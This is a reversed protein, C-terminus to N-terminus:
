ILHQGCGCQRQPQGDRRRPPPPVIITINTQSPPESQGGEFWFTRISRISWPQREHAVVVVLRVCVSSFGIRLYPPEIRCPSCGSVHLCRSAAETNSALACELQVCVQREEGKSEHPVALGSGGGGGCM